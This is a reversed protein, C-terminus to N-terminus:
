ATPQNQEHKETISNFLERLKDYADIWDSQGYFGCGYADEAAFMKKAISVFDPTVAQIAPTTRPEYPVPTEDFEAM